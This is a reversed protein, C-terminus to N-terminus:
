AVLKELYKRKRIEIVRCFNYALVKELLEAAVNELGRRMVRGFNYGHKITFMLSEVASRDNRAQLYEQSEWSQEDIIKKGKSGSISVIKVGMEFLKDRADKSAYGDDVSITEAIVGTREMSEAAIKVFEASDAANGQPVRLGPIFGNKSRGLQPKYGIVDDRGGKRIFGASKDSLSMKKDKSDVREELLVRKSCYEIVRSLWSLDDEMWDILRVLMEYRSPAINLKELNKNVRKMEQSFTRHASESEKLLQRYRKKRKSKSGRRGGCLQIEKNLRTLTKIINPFRRERIDPMEFKHLQKGRHYIRQVLGMLLASDTPWASNASVSTSDFTLDKFDDLKEEIIMRIQSEFIFDLTKQNVSNINDVITSSGPLKKLGFNHFFVELSVSEQLLLQMEQTKLGGFRGRLMLFLYVLLPAMRPCGSQLSLEDAKIETSNLHIDCLKPNQSLEWKQDLLRRKKKNKGYIDQDAEIRELIKPERSVLDLCESLFTSLSSAPSNLFLVRVPEFFATSFLPPNGTVKRLM